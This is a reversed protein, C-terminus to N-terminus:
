FKWRPSSMNLVITNSKRNESPRLYFTTGLLVFDSRPIRIKVIRSPITYNFTDNMGAGFMKGIVGGTCQVYLQPNHDLVAQFPPPSFRLVIPLPESSYALVLDDGQKVEPYKDRLLDPIVKNLASSSIGFYLEASPM